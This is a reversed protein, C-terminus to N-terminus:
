ARPHTKKYVEYLKSKKSINYYVEAAAIDSYGLLEQISKIDAGNQLLHVAFSHRLTNPTISKEIKAESVYFKVIKWFGQRSMVSGRVNLFLNNLNYINIEDRIKIYQELCKLAYSGFPIVRERKRSGRCKLYNLKMNIDSIKINILESVKLGTGYMVELMAKDRIGKNTSLDPIELLTNVEEVTLIQPLTKKEPKISEYKIIPDKSVIDKRLLDKYFRRISVTSRMISSNAKGMKKLHQVYAMITMEDIQKIDENREDLFDAFFKLDRGYADLTNKSLNKNKLDCMYKLVLENM